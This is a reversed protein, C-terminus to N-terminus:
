KTVFLILQKDMELIGQALTISAPIHYELQHNLAIQEFKVRYEQKSLEVNANVKGYILFLLVLCM